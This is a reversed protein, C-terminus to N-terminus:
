EVPSIVDAANVQPMRLADVDRAIGLSIPVDINNLLRADNPHQLPATTEM